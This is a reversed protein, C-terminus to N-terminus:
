MHWKSDVENALCLLFKLSQGNDLHYLTKEYKASTWMSCVLEALFANTMGGLLVPGNFSRRTVLCNSANKSPLINCCDDEVLVM